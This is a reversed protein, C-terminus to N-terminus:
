MKYNNIELINYNYKCMINTHTNHAIIFIDYSRCGGIEGVYQTLIYIKSRYTLAYM